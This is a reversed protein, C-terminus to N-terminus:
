DLIDDPDEPIQLKAIGLGQMHFEIRIGVLLDLDSGISIPALAIARRTREV